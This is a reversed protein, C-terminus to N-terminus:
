HGAATGVIDLARMTPIWLLRGDPGVLPAIRPVVFVVTVLASRDRATLKPKVARM